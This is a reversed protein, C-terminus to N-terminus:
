QSSVGVSLIMAILMLAPVAGLIVGTLPDVVGQLKDIVDYLWPSIGAYAVLVAFAMLVESYRLAGRDDPTPLM